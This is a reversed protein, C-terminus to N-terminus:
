EADPRRMSSHFYDRVQKLVSQKNLTSACIAEVYAMQESTLKALPRGLCDAIAQKAAIITPFTLEQFPDPNVFSQM